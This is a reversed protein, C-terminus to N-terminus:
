PGVTTTPSVKLTTIMTIQTCTIAKGDVVTIRLPGPATSPLGFAWSGKTPTPCNPTGDTPNIPTTFGRSVVVPDTVPYGSSTDTCLHGPVNTNGYLYNPIYQWTSALSCATVLTYGVSISPWSFKTTGGPSLLCQYITPTMPSFTATPGITAPCPSLAADDIFMRARTFRGATLDHTHERGAERGNAIPRIAFSVRGKAFLPKTMEVVSTREVGEQMTQLAANPPDKVFGSAKWM